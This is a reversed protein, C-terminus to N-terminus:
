SHVSEGPKCVCTYNNVGDDCISNNNCNHNLCDDINIECLTGTFGDM